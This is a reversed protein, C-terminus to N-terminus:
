RSSPWRARGPLRSHTMSGCDGRQSDRLDSQCIPPRSTRHRLRGGRVPCRWKFRATGDTAPVTSVPLLPSRIWGSCRGPRHSRRAPWRIALAATFDHVDANGFEDDDERDHQQQEAAPLEWAQSAREALGGPLEPFASLIVRGVGAGAAPRLLLSVLDRSDARRRRLAACTVCEICRSM